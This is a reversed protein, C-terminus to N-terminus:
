KHEVTNPLLIVCFLWIFAPNVCRVYISYATGSCCHNVQSQCEVAESKSEVVDVSVEGSKVVPELLGEDKQPSSEKKTRPKKKTVAV